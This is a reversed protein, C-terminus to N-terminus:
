AHAEVRRRPGPGPTGDAMSADALEGPRPRPYARAAIVRDYTATMPVEDPERHQLSTHVWERPTM